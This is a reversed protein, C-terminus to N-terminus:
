TKSTKLVSDEPIKQKLKFLFLLKQAYQPLRELPLLACLTKLSYIGSLM